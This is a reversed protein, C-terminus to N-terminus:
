IPCQCDFEVYPFMYPPCAHPTCLHVCLNACLCRVIPGPLPFCLQPLMPPPPTNYHHLPLPTFVMCRRAPPGEAGACTGATLVWPVFSVPDPPPNLPHRLLSVLKSKRKLSLSWGYLRLCWQLRVM